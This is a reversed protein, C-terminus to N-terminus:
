ARVTVIRVDPRREVALSALAKLHVSIAEKANQVAEQQTLAKRTSQYDWSM